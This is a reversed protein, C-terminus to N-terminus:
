HAKRTRMADMLLEFMAQALRDVSSISRQLPFLHAVDVNIGIGLVEIRVAHLADLMRRCRQAQYAGDTIVLLMRRPKDQALLEGAGWLM